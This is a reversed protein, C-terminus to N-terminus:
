LPFQSIRNSKHCRQMILPAHVEKGSCIQRNHGAVLDYDSIVNEGNWANTYRAGLTATTLLTEAGM